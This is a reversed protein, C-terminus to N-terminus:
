KGADLHDDADAIVAAGVVVVGVARLARVAEVLTAGTTVIDDVIVVPERLRRARFRGQLNSARARSGLGQQDRGDDSRRLAKHARLRCQSAVSTALRACHDFGRRRVAMPRSPVPILVTEPPPALVAVAKALREGLARGLHLAGDDKYSPIVSQMIPRYPNAAVLPVPKFREVVHPAVDLLSQCAGCIGFGAQRCGPCQAGLLLDALADILHVGVTNTDTQGSERNDM